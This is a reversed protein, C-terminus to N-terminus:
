HESRPLQSPVAVETRHVDAVAAERTVTKALYSPHAGVM